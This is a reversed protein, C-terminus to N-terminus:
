VLSMNGMTRGRIRAKVHPIALCLQEISCGISGVLEGLPTLEADAANAVEDGDVDSDCADGINDYALTLSIVTLSMPVATTTTKGTMTMSMLPMTVPTM